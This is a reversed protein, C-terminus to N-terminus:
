AHVKSRKQSKKVTGKNKYNIWITQLLKKNFFFTMIKINKFILTLNCNILASRSSSWSWNPMSLFSMDNLTSLTKQIVVVCINIENYNKYSIKFIMRLYLFIFLSLPLVIKDVKVLSWRLLQSVNWFLDSDIWFICILHLKWHKRLFSFPFSYTKKWHDQCIKMPRYNIQFFLNLM